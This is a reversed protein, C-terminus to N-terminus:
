NTLGDRWMGIQRYDNAEAKTAVEGNAVKLMLAFLEKGAKNIDKGELLTGADYDTWNRKFKGVKTNSTVRLLPTAFGAPTGRGTTFITMQCGAAEQATIGVLDNGPGSILAFGTKRIRDTYGLVDRVTATGAKETSGLSKEEITSIGGAKNGPVPSNYAKEGYREYYGKYEGIMDVVMKYVEKNESRNMLVQEAGFMEPVETMLVTGGFTTLRDTVKGVAPNATIGSLADSGGCNVAIALDSVPRTERRDGSMAHYIDELLGLAEEIEDEVEQSELWQVRDTDVQGVVRLFSKLNNVECGLGLILVGGANPHHVLNALIKQTYELDRGVQSCGCSHTLAYAGGYGADKPHRLNMEAALQQAPGNVCFVTPIIWLENRIGM